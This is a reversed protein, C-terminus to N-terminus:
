KRRKKEEPYEEFDLGQEARERLKSPRLASIGSAMEATNTSTPTTTTTSTKPASEGGFYGKVKEWASPGTTTKGGM